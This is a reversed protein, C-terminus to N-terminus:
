IYKFLEFYWEAAHGIFIEDEEDLVDSFGGENPPRVPGSIQHNGFPGFAGPIEADCNTKLDTFDYAHQELELHAEIIPMFKQPYACFDEYRVALIPREEGEPTGDDNIPMIWKRRSAEKIIKLTPGLPPIINMWKKVREQLQLPISEPKATDEESALEGFPVHGHNRYTREFSAVVDRLDRVMMVMRVSQSNGLIDELWKCHMSWERNKDVVVEKETLRSYFGQMLGYCAGNLSSKRQDPFQAQASQSQGVARRSANLYDIVPSTATAYVKPHQGLIAQLMESGSKCLSSNFRITKNNTAAM